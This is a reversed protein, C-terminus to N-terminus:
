NAAKKASVTKSYKGYTYNGTSDKIGYRVRVYYNKGSTVTVTTNYVSEDGADEEPITVTKVGYLFIPSPSYEFELSSYGELAGINSTMTLTSSEGSETLSASAIPTAANVKTWIPYINVTAGNKSALNSITNITEGDDQYLDIVNKGKKDTALGSVYYGDRTVGEYFTGLLDSVDNSFYVEYSTYSKKSGDYIGGNPQLRIDYTCEEFVAELVIDVENNKKIDT